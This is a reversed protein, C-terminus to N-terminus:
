FMTWSTDFYDAKVKYVPMNNALEALYGNSDRIVEFTGAISVMTTTYEVGDPFATPDVEVIIADWPDPQKGFCCLGNDKVVMFQMLGNEQGIPFMWAKIFIPKGELAAVDPHLQPIGNLGIFGKESIDHAFSIRQFGDPVERRYLDIQHYIGGGFCLTSLVLGSAAIKLGGYNERDFAIRLTAALSAV